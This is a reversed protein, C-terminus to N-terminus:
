IKEILKLMLEKHQTLAREQLDLQREMLTQSEKQVIMREKHNKENETQLHEITREM